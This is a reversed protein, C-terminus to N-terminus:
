RRPPRKTGGFTLANTSKTLVPRTSTGGLVRRRARRALLVLTVYSRTSMFEAGPGTLAERVSLRLSRDRGQDLSRVGQDLASRGQERAHHKGRGTRLRGGGGGRSRICARDSAAVPRRERGGRRRRRPRRHRLVRRAEAARLRSTQLSGGDRGRGPDARHPSRPLVP